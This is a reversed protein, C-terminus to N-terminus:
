YSFQVFAENIKSKKTLYETMAAMIKKRFVTSTEITISRKFFNRALRIEKMLQKLAEETSKEMIGLAQILYQVGMEIEVLGMWAIAQQILGIANNPDIELVKKCEWLAENWSQFFYLTCILCFVSM